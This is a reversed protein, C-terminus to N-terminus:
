IACRDLCRGSGRGGDLSREEFELQRVITTPTPLGVQGEGGGRNTPTRSAFPVVVGTGTVGSLLVGHGLVPDRNMMRVVEVRHSDFVRFHIAGDVFQVIRHDIRAYTGEDASQLLVGKCLRHSCIAVPVHRDGVPRVHFPGFM